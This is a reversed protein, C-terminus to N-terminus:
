GDHANLALVPIGRGDLCEEGDTIRQNADGSGAAVKQGKRLRTFEWWAGLAFKDDRYISM